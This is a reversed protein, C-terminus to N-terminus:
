RRMYSDFFQPFKNKNKNLLDAIFRILADREAPALPTTGAERNASIVTQGNAAHIAGSEVKVPFVDDWNERKGETIKIFDNAKGM